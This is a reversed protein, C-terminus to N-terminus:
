TGSFHQRYCDGCVLMKSAQLRGLPKRTDGCTYCCTGRPLVGADLLRERPPAPPPASSIAIPLDALNHSLPRIDELKPTEELDDLCTCQMTPQGCYGCYPSAALPALSGQIGRWGSATGFEPTKRPVFQGNIRLDELTVELKKKFGYFENTWRAVAAEMVDRTKSTYAKGIFAEEMRRSIFLRLREKEVQEQFEEINRRVKEFSLQDVAGEFVIRRGAYITEGLESTWGPPLEKPTDSM